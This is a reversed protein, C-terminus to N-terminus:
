VFESYYLYQGMASGYLNNADLYMIYKNPKSNYLKMDKNNDKSYRKAIYSICGRVEKELLLYMDNDSILELEIGNVKIM